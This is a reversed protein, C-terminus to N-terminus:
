QARQAQVQAFTQGTAELTATQGTFTQWRTVIVDCYGPDLESLRARMGLRECAMMTSGSGGFSDLVIDGKKANNKLMREILAVPKMTPHMDSRAPKPENIISPILEEVTAAGDILMVSDGLHIEYKGDFRERFSNNEAAFEIMTTQKRGGFWRHAAGPKWGYLIPEHIWQYDSRGMVLANKKWVICGSLKFGANKFASRFNFGETDAHAVYIAGGPKMVGIMAAMASDLFAKFDQDSINDNAIKGADTEYAVNYPPDTWVMDALDKQMLRSLNETSTSDGCIVRHLGLKWVDGTRTTPDDKLAPAADPDKTNEDNKSIDLLDSLEDDGFGLLSMDFSDAMLDEMERKLTAMDWGAQEALKNDAIVYARRQNDSLHSLRICPVVQLGISKAAMVRGHGAILTNHDDILVPNTFGFEEISKGLQAVQADSHTRSNRAYAVLADTAIHEIASPLHPPNTTM